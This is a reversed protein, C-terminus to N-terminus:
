RMVKKGNKIYIKTAKRKTDANVKRGQLDYWSENLGQDDGNFKIGTVSPSAIVPVGEAHVNTAQVDVPYGDASLRLLQTYGSHLTQGTPSFVVLRVGDETDRSQMQWDTGNLLLRVQSSKVGKLHLDFASIEDQADLCIRRGSAYFYNAASSQRTLKRSFVSPNSQNALVINVTCVIDQINIIDDSDWTNGAWLSFTTSNNYNIVYNLTRQVDNIDVFGSLNADGKEMHFIVPYASHQAAGATPMIILEEDQGQEQIASYGKYYYREKTTSWELSGIRNSLKTKRYVNFTRINGLTQSSHTYGVIAPVDVLINDGFNVHQEPLNEIGPVDVSNSYRRHQYELNLTTVAPSVASSLDDIQNYALNVDTLLPTNGNNIFVSPDGTLANRSLNLTKLKSLSLPMATSLSGKLNRAQLTIATVFGDKDFTVGSWNGSAVLSSTINWKTGSWSDGGFDTYIQRLVTLDNDNVYCPTMTATTSSMLRNNNATANHEMAANDVNTVVFVRLTGSSVDPVIMNFTVDYVGDIGVNGEHVVDVAQVANSFSTSNITYYLRDTWIGEVTAGSGQNKIRATVTLETGGPAAEPLNISEVVLDPLLRGQLTMTESTLEDCSGIATVTWTYCYGEKVTIAYELANVDTNVIVSPDAGAAAENVVIHYKAADNFANWKLKTSVPDVNSGSAPLLETFSQNQMSARVYIYYIYDCLYTDDATSLTIKYAISDTETGSNVILMEPIDGVGESDYGSLTTGEHPQAQWSAKISESITSLAVATTNSCGIQFRLSTPNFNYSVGNITLPVNTQSTQAFLSVVAPLGAETTTVSVKNGSGTGSTKGSFAIVKHDRALSIDNLNESIRSIRSLSNEDTADLDYTVNKSAMTLTIHDSIGRDDFDNFADLLSQYNREAMSTARGSNLTYNGEADVMITYAVTPSWGLTGFYRIFLTADGHVVNTPVDFDSISVETGPTLSIPTGNGYGPDDNWFYEAYQVEFANVDPEITVIHHMTPTWGGNGYARIYLHHDGASLGVVSLEANEINVEQGKTFPLSTANGYGPDVDWFYEVYSIDTGDASSEPVFVQQTVLPSWGREGQARIGLLHVGNSLGTTPIDINNLNVENGETIAIATANGMGPDVDWFYEVRSITPTESIPVYIQKTITPAYYSPEGPKYARFGLLHVGPALGTTPFSFSDDTDASATMWQGNGLGPDTDFFYEVRLQAHLSVSSCVALVVAMLMRLKRSIHSNM